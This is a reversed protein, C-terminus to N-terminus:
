VGKKWVYYTIDNPLYGEVKEFTEVGPLGMLVEEIHEPSYGKLANYEGEKLFNFAFGKTALDNMKVLGVELLSDKTNFTGSAFVYDFKEVPKFHSFDAFVINNGKSVGKSVLDIEREVGTYDVFNGKEKLLYDNFHGLGAGVDLIKDPSYSTEGEHALELFKALVEFRKTQSDDNKWGVGEASDGYVFYRDSYYSKTLYPESKLVDSRIFVHRCNVHPTLDRAKSGYKEATEKITKQLESFSVGNTTKESIEKCIDTTRHDDPGIWKYLFNKQGGASKYSNKRAIMSIHHTETRAITELRSKEVEVAELMNDVIKDISLSKPESYSLRIADRLKSNVSKNLNKFTLDFIKESRLSRIAQEDVGSFGWSVKLEKAVDEGARRYISVISDDLVRRMENSMTESFKDAFKLLREKSPKRELDLNRLEKKFAELLKKKLGVKDRLGVAKALEPTGTPSGQDPYSELPQSFLPSTNEPTEFPNTSNLPQTFLDPNEYDFEGNAGITVKFGMRKMGEAYQMKKLDRDIEATEDQEESPKLCLEYDVINFQKMLRPFVIENWLSQGHAVARNTVTVQLGENNLGGATSTDGQFLPMVGFRAGLLTRFEQRVEVYQSETLSNMFDIFQAVNGSSGSQVALPHIAHPNGKTKDLIKEWSKELEQVNSTNILIMGKPPRQRSYYERVYLVMARLSHVINWVSIVPSYGFRQPHYKNTWIVEDALYYTTQSPLGERDSTAKYHAPYLKKECVKCSLQKTGTYEIDRHEPCTLIMEGSLSHGLRGNNDMLPVFREPSGRVIGNIESSYIEGNADYYYEKLLLLFMQDAAQLDEECQRIVNMFTDQNQNVCKFLSEVKKITSDNKPDFEKTQFGCVECLGPTFNYEKSCQPCKAQHKAKWEYGNRFIERSLNSFIIQLEPSNYVAEYIVPMPIASGPNTNASYKRGLYDINPLPTSKLVKVEQSLKAVTTNM